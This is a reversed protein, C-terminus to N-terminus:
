REKKMLEIMGLEEPLISDDEPPLNKAMEKAEKYCSRSIDFYSMEVYTMSLLLLVLIVRGCKYDFREAIERAKELHKLMEDQDNDVKCFLSSQLPPVLAPLPPPAFAGGLIIKQGGM